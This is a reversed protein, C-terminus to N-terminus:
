CKARPCYWLVVMELLRQEKNWPRSSCMAHWNTKQWDAKSERWLSAANSIGMPGFCGVSRVLRCSKWTRKQRSDRTGLVRTYRPQGFPFVNMLGAEFCGSDESTTCCQGFGISGNSQHVVEGLCHGNQENGEKPARVACPDRQSTTRPLQHLQHTVALRSPTSRHSAKLQPLFAISWFSSDSTGVSLHVSANHHRMGMTRFARRVSALTQWSSMVQRVLWVTDCGAKSSKYYSSLWSYVRQYNLM